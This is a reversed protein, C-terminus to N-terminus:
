AHIRYARFVAINMAVTYGTPESGTPYSAADRTRMNSSDPHILTAHRLRSDAIMTLFLLEDIWLPLGSSAVCRIPFLQEM